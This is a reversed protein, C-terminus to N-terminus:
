KYVGKGILHSIQVNLSNEAKDGKREVIKLVAAFPKVDCLRRNEDLLEETEAMSNTCSFIYSNCDHLMGHLPFKTAEEWLDQLHSGKLYVCKFIFVVM